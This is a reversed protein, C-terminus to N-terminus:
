AAGGLDHRTAAVGQAVGMAREISVRGVAVSGTDAIEAAGGVRLSRGVDRVDRARELAPRLKARAHAGLAHEDFVIAADADNRSGDRCPSGEFHPPTRRDERAAGHERGEQKLIEAHARPVDASVEGDM